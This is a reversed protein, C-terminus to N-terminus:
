PFYLPLFLFQATCTSDIRIDTDSSPSPQTSNVTTINLSVPLSLWHPSLNYPVMLLPPLRLQESITLLVCKSIANYSKSPHSLKIGGEHIDLIATYRYGVKLEM